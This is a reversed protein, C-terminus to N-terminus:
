QPGERLAIQPRPVQGTRELLVSQESWMLKKRAPTDHDHGLLHLLGHILLLALEDGLHRGEREAQRAVYPLAIAIDGLYPETEAAIARPNDTTPFSLVDTSENVNRYTANLERM